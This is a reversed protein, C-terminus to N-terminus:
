TRYLSPGTPLRGTALADRRVHQVQRRCQGVFLKGRQTERVGVREDRRGGGKGHRREGAGASFPDRVSRNAGTRHVSMVPRVDPLKPFDTFIPLFPQSAV